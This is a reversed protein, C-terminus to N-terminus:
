TENSNDLSQEDISKIQNSQETPINLTETTKIPLDSPMRAFAEVGNGDLEILSSKTRLHEMKMKDNNDKLKKFPLVKEFRKCDVTLKKALVQISYECQNTNNM